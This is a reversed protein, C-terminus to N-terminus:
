STPERGTIRALERRVAPMRTMGGVLLVEDLDAKAQPRLAGASGQDAGRAASSRRRGYSSSTAACRRAHVGRGQGVAAPRARRRPGERQHREVARAQHAARRDAAARDRDHRDLYRLWADRPRRSRPERRAARDVDDGGLFPDGTTALVEFVGDEVDVAAVDFTGGGLDCVLYRRDAGRHAGHGLAAATPESLLRMVSIGAIQAADKTAQRQAADYWAPITIVARTVPEEFFREATRKLERLISRACRRPRSRGARRRAPDLYRRESGRHARVPPGARAEQDRSSRLTPRAPAQRRLDHRGPQPRARRSGGGRRGTRRALVVRALAADDLGEETTLIRPAGDKDIVAVVSNSTGLDIGVARGSRPNVPVVEEDRGRRRRGQPAARPDARGRHVARPARARGRAASTALM